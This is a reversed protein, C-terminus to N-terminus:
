TTLSAFLPDAAPQLSEGNNITYITSWSDRASITYDGRLTGFDERISQPPTAYSLAAGTPLGNVTLEPGNPFPWLAMYPLM